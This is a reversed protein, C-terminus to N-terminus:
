PSDAGIGQIGATAAYVHLQRGATNLHREGKAGVHRRRDDAGLWIVIEESRRSIIHDPRAAAAKTQCRGAAVVRDAATARGTARTAISDNPTGPIVQDKGARSVIIYNGARPMRSDDATTTM